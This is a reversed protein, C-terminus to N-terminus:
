SPTGMATSRVGYLMLRFADQYGQVRCRQAGYAVIEGSRDQVCVSAMFVNCKQSLRCVALPSCQLISVYQRHMMDAVAQEQCCEACQVAVDCLWRVYRCRTTQPMSRILM